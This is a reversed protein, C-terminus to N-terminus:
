TVGKERNVQCLGNRSVCPFDKLRYLADIDFFKRIKEGTRVLVVDLTIPVAFPTTLEIKPFAPDPM